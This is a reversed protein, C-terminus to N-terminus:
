KCFIPLAYASYMAVVAFATVALFVSPQFCMPASLAFTLVLMMVSAAIPAQLTRAHLPTHRLVARLTGGDWSCRRPPLWGTTVPTPRM